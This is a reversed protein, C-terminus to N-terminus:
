PQRPGCVLRGRLRGDNSPLEDGVMCGTAIKVAERQRDREDIDYSVILSKRAVVVADGDTSVRYKKGDVEVKTTTAKAIAAAATLGLLAATLL